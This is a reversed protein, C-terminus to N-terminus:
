VRKGAAATIPINIPEGDHTQTEGTTPLRNKVNIILNMLQLRSVSVTQFGKIVSPGFVFFVKITTCIEDSHKARGTIPVFIQVPQM